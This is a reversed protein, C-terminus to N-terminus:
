RLSPALKLRLSQLNPGTCGKYQLLLPHGRLQRPDATNRMVVVSGMKKFSCRCRRRRCRRRMPCPDPIQPM